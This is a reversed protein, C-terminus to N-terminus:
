ERNKIWLGIHRDHSFTDHWRYSERLADNIKAWSAEPEQTKFWLVYQIDQGKLWDAPNPMDGSYFQKMKEYRYPIDDPYGRWLMEHGEWGMYCAQGAFLTMASQNAFSETAEPDELTIGRPLAKLYAFLGRNEKTLLFSQGSLQGVHTKPGDLWYTALDFSYVLPYAVFFLAPIWILKRPNALLRVGLTLLIM